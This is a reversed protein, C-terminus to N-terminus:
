YQEDLIPMLHHFQLGKIIQINACVQKDIVINKKLTIKIKFLIPNVLKIDFDCIILKNFNFSFGFIKEGMRKNILEIFHLPKKKGGFFLINKHVQIEFTKISLKSNSKVM